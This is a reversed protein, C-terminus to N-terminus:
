EFDGDVLQLRRLFRKGDPGRKGVEYEVLLGDGPISIEALRIRHGSADLIRAKPALRYTEAGIEVIRRAGDLATVVDQEATDNKKPDAMAGTALVLGLTTLLTIWGGRMGNWSIHLKM